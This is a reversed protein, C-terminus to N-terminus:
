RAEALIFVAPGSRTAVRRVDLGGFRARELAQVVDELSPFKAGLRLVRGGEGGLTWEHVAVVLRGGDRVVRRVEGADPRVDWLMVNNISCVRDFSRDPWPIHHSSGLRLGVRGSAVADRNRRRAQALMVRSPDVGATFGATTCAALLHIAVGPGFGVELVRDTPAPELLEVTLRAMDANGRAM